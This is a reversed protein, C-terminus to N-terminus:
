KAAPALRTMGAILPVQAASLGPVAALLVALLVADLVPVEEGFSLWLVVAWFGVIGIAAYGRALRRARQETGAAERM